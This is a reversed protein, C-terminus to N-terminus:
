IVGEHWGPVPYFKQLLWDLSRKAGKWKNGKWLDQSYKRAVAIDKGKIPYPFSFGKDNTRFMHAFWTKKNVMQAGGSLWTKCAIEVGMQGWGGHNEDLGGLKWFREREMFWCAGLAAMQPTIDAKAWDRYKPHYKRKMASRDHGYNRLTKWDYYSFKMDKNFWMYDTCYKLRPQWVVVMEIQRGECNECKKPKPGQYVRHGCDMCKWDFAHLNYMRPVITWDPQMDAMLKIDFDEDLACHADLKMIYKAQSLRAAENIAARQGISQSHYIIHVRGYDDTISPEPMNGDCVVIIETNGGIGDIIDEVTKALFMENRAAILVSLDKM